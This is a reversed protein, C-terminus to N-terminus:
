AQGHREMVTRSPCKLSDNEARKLAKGIAASHWPDSVFHQRYPCIPRRVAEPFRTVLGAGIRPFAEIFRKELPIGMSM